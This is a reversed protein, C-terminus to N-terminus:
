NMICKVGYRVLDKAQASIVYHFKLAVAADLQGDRLGEWSALLRLAREHLM